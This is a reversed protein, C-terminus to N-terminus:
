VCRRTHFLLLEKDDVGASERELPVCAGWCVWGGVWGGVWGCGVL